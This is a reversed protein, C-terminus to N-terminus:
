GVVARLFAALDDTRYEVHPGIVASGASNPGDRGPGVLVTRMGLEHPITLNRPDDEFFAARKPDIGTQKMVADYAARAPKPHFGTNEVGYIAEFPGLGCADLVKRAYDSDANTHILKRGPLAAIAAALDPAPQLVSFDIDHVYALYESPNIDQEAMMGALTTGYRHWYDRRMLDAEADNLGLHQMVFANMKAGIQDFLGVEPPYLTHDLDFIWIDVHSFDM